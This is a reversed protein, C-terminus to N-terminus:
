KKSGPCHYHHHKGSALPREEHLIAFLGGGASTLALAALAGLGLPNTICCMLGVCALSFTFAGMAYYFHRYVEPHIPPLPQAQKLKPIPLAPPSNDPSCSVPFFPASPPQYGYRKAYEIEGVALYAAQISADSAGKNKYALVQKHFGGRAFGAAAANLHDVSNTSQSLLAQVESEHGGAAYGKIAVPSFTNFDQILYHNVAEKNGAQALGEVISTWCPPNFTPFSTAKKLSGARAYGRMVAHKTEPYYMFFDRVTQHHGGFAYHEAILCRLHRREDRNGQQWALFHAIRTTDGAEAYTAALIFANAGQSLWYEVSPWDDAKAYGKARATANERTVEEFLADAKSSYGTEAYGEAAAEKIREKAISLNQDTAPAIIDRVKEICCAVKTHNGAKAYGRAIAELTKISYPCASGTSVDEMLTNTYAKIECYFDYNFYYKKAEDTHNILLYGRAIEKQSVHYTNTFAEVREHNNARAYYGAIASYNIPGQQLWEDVGHNNAKLAYGQVIAIPNAGITLLANAKESYGGYAYGFAAAHILSAGNGKGLLYARVKETNGAIAYGKIIGHVNAQYTSALFEVAEDKGEYALQGAVTLFPPKDDFVDIYYGRSNLLLTLTAEDKKEALQYLQQFHHM